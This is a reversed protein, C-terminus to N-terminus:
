GESECSWGSECRSARVSKVEALALWSTDLRVGSCLGRGKRSCSSGSPMSIPFEVDASSFRDEGVVAAAARLTDLVMETALLRASSSVGFSFSSRSAKDWLM